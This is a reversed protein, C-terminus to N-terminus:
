KNFAIAHFKWNKQFYVSVLLISFNYVIRCGLPLSFYDMINLLVISMQLLTM